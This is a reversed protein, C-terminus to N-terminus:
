RINNNRLLQINVEPDSIGKHESFGRSILLHKYGDRRNTPESLSFVHTCYTYVLHVTELETIVFLLIKWSFNLLYLSIVPHIVKDKM